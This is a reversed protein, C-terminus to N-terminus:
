NEPTSQWRVKSLRSSFLWGCKRILRTIAGDVSSYRPAKGDSVYNMFVMAPIFHTPNHGWGAVYYDRLILAKPMCFYVLLCGIKISLDATRDTSAVLGHPINRVIQLPCSIRTTSGAEGRVYIAWLM